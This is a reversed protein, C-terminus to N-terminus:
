DANIIRKETNASIKKGMRQQTVLYDLVADRFIYGKTQHPINRLFEANDGGNAVYDPLAVIYIANMDLPNNDIKVNIAKKNKIQMSLGAVPWGNSSATHDLFQQLQTGTLKLLVIANDFPVLEFIKGKTINGAPISTLRVGGANLVALDVKTAYTTSAAQLMIDSLLNGLTGNSRELSVETFAIVESMTKNVSDAYPKLMATVTHDAVKNFVTDQRYQIAQSRYTTNCSILFGFFFSLNFLKM